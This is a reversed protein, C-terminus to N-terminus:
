NKLSLIEKLAAVEPFMYKTISMFLTPLGFLVILVIPLFVYLRGILVITDESDSRGYATKKFTEKHKHYMNLGTAIFGCAILMGLSSFIIGYIAELREKRIMIQWLYEASTGLRTALSTLLKEFEPSM